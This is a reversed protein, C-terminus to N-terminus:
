VNSYRARSYRTQSFSASSDPEDLRAEKSGGAVAVFVSRLLIEPCFVDIRQKVSSWPSPHTYFLISSVSSILPSPRSCACILQMQADRRLLRRPTCLSSLLRQVGTRTAHLRQVTENMFSESPVANETLASRRLVAGTYEM